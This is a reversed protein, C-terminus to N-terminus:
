EFSTVAGGRIVSSTVQIVRGTDARGQGRGEVQGGEGSGNRLM